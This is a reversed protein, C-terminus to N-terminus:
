CGDLSQPFLAVWVPLRPVCLGRGDGTELTHWVKDLDAQPHKQLVMRWEKQLRRHRRVQQSESVVPRM